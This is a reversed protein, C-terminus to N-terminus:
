LTKAELWRATDRGGYMVRVITVTKTADNPIYFVCYRDVPMVRLGRKKWVGKEYKRFRYPFEDLGRIHQELCQLQGVANEPSQLHIAIYRFIERLDANAEDSLNVAYKM